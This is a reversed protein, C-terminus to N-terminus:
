RSEVVAISQEGPQRVRGDCWYLADEVSGHSEYPRRGRSWTEAAAITHCALNVNIWLQQYRCNSNSIDVIGIASIRLEFQRYWCNHIFTLKAQWVISSCQSGTSAHISFTRRRQVSQMHLPQSAKAKLLSQKVRLQSQVLSLWPRHIASRVWTCRVARWSVVAGSPLAPDRVRRLPGGDSHSLAADKRNRGEDM